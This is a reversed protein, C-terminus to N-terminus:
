HIFNYALADCRGPRLAIIEFRAAEAILVARGTDSDVLRIGCNKEDTVRAPNGV